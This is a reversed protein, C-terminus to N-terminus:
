RKGELEKNRDLLLGKLLLLYNQMDMIKEDIYKESYIRPVEVMDIISVFHKDMKGFLSQEPATREIEASRIFNYFANGRDGSYEDQKGSMLALAGESTRKAMEMFTKRDM